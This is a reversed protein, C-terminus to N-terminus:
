GGGEPPKRIAARWRAQHPPIWRYNGLVNDVCTERKKVSCQPCEVNLPNADACRETEAAIALDLSRNAITLRNLEGVIEDDTLEVPCGDPGDICPMGDYERLFFPERQEQTKDGVRTEERPLPKQLTRRPSPM